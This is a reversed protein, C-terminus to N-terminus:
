LNKIAIDSNLVEDVDLNWDGLPRFRGYDYVQWNDGSLGIELDHPQWGQDKLYQKVWDLHSSHVPLQQDVEEMVLWNGKEADFAIVPAFSNKSDREELWVYAEVFNQNSYNGNDDKENVPSQDFRRLKAVYDKNGEILDGYNEHSSPVKGVPPWMREDVLDFNFHDRIRKYEQDTSARGYLNSM